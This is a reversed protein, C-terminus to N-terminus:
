IPAGDHAAAAALPAPELARHARRLQRPLQQQRQEDAGALQAPQSEPLVRQARGRARRRPASFEFERSGNRPYGCGLLKSVEPSSKVHLIVM